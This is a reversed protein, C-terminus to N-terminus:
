RKKVISIVPNKGLNLILSCSHGPRAIACVSIIVTQSNVVMGSLVIAPVGRNSKARRTLCPCAIIIEGMVPELNGFINSVSVTGPASYTGAVPCACHNVVMISIINASVCGNSKVWRAVGPHAIAIVSSVLELSGLINSISVSGPASCPGAVPCACHNVVMVSLVIAPKGRNSKVRRAIGPYAIMIGGIAPELSGLINSVSVSGPASCPGAVPCACSNVVMGTIINAFVGRNSKVRRAIGPYAIIIGGIEQELSGLINTRSVSGPASYPGAVPCACHNVVMSTIINAFVGRNSKVRRAIGPYAIIIVSIEQELSGLINTRSVSGPASCPGAVPSTSHNVVM